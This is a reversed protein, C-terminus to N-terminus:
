FASIDSQQCLDMYDFRHNKQYDPIYTLSWLSPQTHFFQHKQITISSFVRSLTKSLWFILGTLGFPFLVQIKMSLVSASASAGISQGGSIFLQSMSFSESAPSSQLPFSFLAASSSITLYCRQSLPCSKLSGRPSLPPCLLRAHQLRHAQLFKSM